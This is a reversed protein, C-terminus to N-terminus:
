LFHQESSGFLVPHQQQNRIVILLSSPITALFLASPPPFSLLNICSILPEAQASTSFSPSEPLLSHDAKLAYSVKRRRARRLLGNDSERLRDRRRSRSLGGGKSMAILGYWTSMIETDQM